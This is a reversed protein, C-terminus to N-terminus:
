SNFIAAYRKPSELSDVTVIQQTNVAASEVLVFALHAYMSLLQQVKDKLELLM